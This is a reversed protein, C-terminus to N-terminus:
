EKHHHQLMQAFPKMLLLEHRKPTLCFCSVLLCKKAVLLLSKPKSRQGNLELTCLLPDFLTMKFNFHAFPFHTQKWNLLGRKEGRKDYYMFPVSEKWAGFPFGKALKIKGALHYYSYYIGGPWSPILSSTSPHVQVISLCKTRLLYTNIASHSQM